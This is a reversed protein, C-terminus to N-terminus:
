NCVTYWVNKGKLEDFVQVMPCATRSPPLVGPAQSTCAGDCPHEIDYSGACFRMDKFDCSCRCTSAAYLATSCLLMLAVLTTKM